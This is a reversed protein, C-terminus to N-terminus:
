ARGSNAGALSWQKYAQLTTIVGQKIAEGIEEHKEINGGAALYVQAVLSIVLAMATSMNITVAQQGAKLDAATSTAAASIIGQVAQQIFQHVEPPAQYMEPEAM